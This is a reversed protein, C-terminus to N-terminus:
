QRIAVVLDMVNTGTPGPLFLDKTASLCPYANARQLAAIPDIKLAIAKEYTNGDILAGAADTPGDTGDTGAVLISINSAHHNLKTALLLALAQNRGGMGPNDPLDVTTEGGWIYIGEDGKFLKNAIIDAADRYDMDLQKDIIYVPYDLEEALEAIDTKAQENNAVVHHQFQQDPCKTKNQVVEVSLTERLFSDISEKSVDSILEAINQQNFVLGSGIVNLNDNPVDSIYLCLVPKSGFYECLKGGKILSIQQRMYNTENINLGNNLAWENLECLSKLDFPERLVEVLSSAGGSILMLVKHDNPIGAIFELLINGADLSFQDPVPHSSEHCTIQYHELLEPDTHDYKTLVLGAAVREGLSDLAGLMMDSAAKGIAIVSYPEDSIDATSFYRQVSSRGRVSQVGHNWLQILLDRCQQETSVRDMCNNELM